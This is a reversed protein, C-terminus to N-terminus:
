IKFSLNFSVSRTSPTQANELGQINSTTTVSQPDLYPVNSYMLWLNRGVISLNVDRFPTKSLFKNPLQYSLSAERLKVFSADYLNLVARNYNNQYFAAASITNTNPTGDELVGELVLGNERVGEEATEPLLGSYKAWQLSTSHMVGGMQADILASLTLGKYSISNRIGGTWDPMVSGLSVRDDTFKYNGDEEIVKNGNDDYVFDQGYIAMYSEGEVIRLDAAWTAGMAIYPLNDALEEVKNNIKAYNLSVTWSFGSETKIPTGSLMLEVGNNRMSGANLVRDTYGTTPSVSVEVTQESTTRDFYAMDLVVRGGLFRANVGIETETTLEPVLNLNNALNPVTYRQYGGFSPTVQEYVDYLSYPTAGNAAQGFSARLKGFSLIESDQFMPLESFVFSASVSPYLRSNSEMPLTSFWDNRLSADLYVMDKYGVSASFFISNIAQERLKTETQAASSSNNVNWFGDLPLGGVTNTTTRSYNQMMMNGGLIGTVSIEGFRGDYMLRGEFNNESNIRVEEQYSSVDVGGPRRGEVMRHTYRDTSARGVLQLGKALDYTLTMNGMLRDRVDNQLNEYRVWYPNDFYKPSLNTPSNINWTRQSGDLSKYNKMRDFDLQTQWWQTFGQMVNNNDYGTATRGNAETNIYSGSASAKFKDTLNYDGKFTFTNKELSSNPMIGTANNNTYGLRFAGKDNGGSIAVSNNFTKGMEFFDHYDSTPAVWPRTEGYNDTNPDFSDWHRVMLSPDYKPGWSGDLAYQPGIIGDGYDFFGDNVLNGDDDTNIGGGGYVRQHEIMNVAKELTVGTSVSVGLGQNRKGSKTTIIIVGNAGRAGYLASATAGKLVSMSEIDNPNIDSAANGYDYAGDGFGRAQDKTGYNSNDIPQGDVVFLPQNEGLLSNVGRLTIRSSGGLNGTAGAVQVGAIQGNLSNVVNMEGTEALAEGKVEQVAYGLSREERKVGLATVVVEDLQEADVELAVNIVSQNGVVIEQAKYGVFSFTLTSENNPIEIKFDGSLGTITGQSTGKLVVTVGPLPEGNDTVVGTVTKKQAYATILLMQLFALTLLLRKKM